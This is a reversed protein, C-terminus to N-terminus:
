RKVKGAGSPAKDEAAADAAAPDDVVEVDVPTEWQRVYAALTAPVVKGDDLEALLRASVGHESEIADYQENADM